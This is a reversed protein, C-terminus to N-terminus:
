SQGLYALGLNIQVLTIVYLFFAIALVVVLATRAFHDISVGKSREIVLVLSACLMALGSVLGAVGWFSFLHTLGYFANWAGFMGSAITVVVYFGIPSQDTLAGSWPSPRLVALTLLLTICVVIGM